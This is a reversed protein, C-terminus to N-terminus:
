FNKNREWLYIQFIQTRIFHCWRYFLIQFIQIAVFQPTFNVVGLTVHRMASLRYHLPPGVIVIIIVMVMFAVTVHFLICLNHLLPHLPHGVCHCHIFFSEASGCGARDKLCPPSNLSVKFSKEKGKYKRLSAPSHLFLPRSGVVFASKTQFLSPIAQNPFLKIM